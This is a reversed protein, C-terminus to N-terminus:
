IPHPPTPSKRLSTEKAPNIAPKPNGEAPPVFQGDLFLDYRKRFQPDVSEPAPAYNWQQPPPTTETTPSM